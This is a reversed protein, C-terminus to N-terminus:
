LNTVSYTFTAMTSHSNTVNIVTITGTKRSLGTNVITWGLVDGASVTFAGTYPTFGGNLSYFLGATGSNTASVSIPGTIAAITVTNTSVAADGYCNSWVPAPSPIITGGGGGGGGGSGTGAGSLAM